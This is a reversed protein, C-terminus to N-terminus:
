PLFVEEVMQALLIPVYISVFLSIPIRMWIVKTDMSCLHMNVYASKGALKFVNEPSTTPGTHTMYLKDGDKEQVVHEVFFLALGRFIPLIQDKLMMFSKFQGLDIYLLYDFVHTALWAGCAECLAVEIGAHFDGKLRGDTFGSCVWASNDLSVQSSKSAQSEGPSTSNDQGHSGRGQAIGDIGTHNHLVLTANLGDDVSGTANSAVFTDEAMLGRQGKSEAQLQEQHMRARVRAFHLRKAERNVDNNSAHQPMVPPRPPRNNSTSVGIGQNRNIDSSISSSTSFIRPQINRNSVVEHIFGISGSSMNFLVRDSIGFIERAARRGQKSLQSVMQVLPPMVEDVQAMM